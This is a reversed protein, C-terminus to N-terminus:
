DADRFDELPIHRLREEAARSKVGASWDLSLDSTGTTVAPTESM